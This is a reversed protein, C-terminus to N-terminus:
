VLELLVRVREACHKVSYANEIAHGGRERVMARSQACKTKMFRFDALKALLCPEAADATHREFIRKVIQVFRFRLTPQRQPPKKRSKRVGPFYKAQKEQFLPALPKGREESM